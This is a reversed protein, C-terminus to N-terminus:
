YEDDIAEEDHLDNALEHMSFNERIKRKARDRQHNVAGTKNGYRAHISELLKASSECFADIKKDVSTKDNPMVQKIM